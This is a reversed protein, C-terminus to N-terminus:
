NVDPTFSAFGDTSIAVTGRKINREFLAEVVQHLRDNRIVEILNDALGTCVLADYIYAKIYRESMVIKIFYIDGEQMAALIELAKEAGALEMQDTIDGKEPLQPYERSSSVHFLTGWSRSSSIWETEFPPLRM